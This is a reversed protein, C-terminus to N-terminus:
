MFFREFYLIIRQKEAYLESCGAGRISSDNNLFHTYEYVTTRSIELKELLGKIEYCPTEDPYTM